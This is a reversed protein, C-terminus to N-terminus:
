VAGMALANIIMHLAIPSWITGSYEYSVCLAVSPLGYLLLNMGVTMLDMEGLYPLTHMAAFVLATLVYALLRNKRRINSFILGRILTEEVIPALLVAGVWMVNYNVEAIARVTEDNPAITEPAVVSILLVTAIQLIEYCAFGLFVSKLFRLFNHAALPLSDALFRRFLVATVVFNVVYYAGNLSADDTPLGFLPLVLLLLSGMGFQYLLFFLIGGIIESRRMRVSFPEKM